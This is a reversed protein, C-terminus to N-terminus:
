QYITKLYLNEYENVISEKSFRKKAEERCTTRNIKDLMPIISIMEEKTDCVFGTQGNNIVEPVSGRNFGIVPTGCALAEAMVIGFPEEWLIPMLLASSEGLIINKEQDDVPGMYEVKEGVYPEVCNKFYDRHKKEDPINGAIILKKNSKKAVEIAIHVGKIEEIRGLFVLPADFDHKEIFKYKEIEVANYVYHFNSESLYNQILNKSCGVFHLSGRSIMTGLKVSRGTIYRQYSMIKPIRMPLVPLLYALRGFSHVLDYDGGIIEKSILYMNRILSSFSSSISTGYPILKCSVESEPHAFLTIDYGKDILGNLLIDIIREIGGYYKPPIPLVPDATIAIKMREKQTVM